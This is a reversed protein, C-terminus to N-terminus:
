AMTQEYLRINDVTKRFLTDFALLKSRIEQQSVDRKSGPRYAEAIDSAIQSLQVLGLNICVGKIAHASEFLAAGDMSQGAAALDAFIPNDPLKRIHKDMLKEIRMVRMAQEYDGDIAAYLERLTM